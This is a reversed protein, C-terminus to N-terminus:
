VKVQTWVFHLSERKRNCVQRYSKHHGTQQMCNPTHGRSDAMQEKRNIAGIGLQARDKQDGGGMGVRVGILSNHM